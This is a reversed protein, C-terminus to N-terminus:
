IIHLYHKEIPCKMSILSWGAPQNIQLLRGAKPFLCFLCQQCQTSKKVGNSPRKVSESCEVWPICVVLHVIGWVGPHRSIQQIDNVWPGSHCPWANSNRTGPAMAVPLLYLCVEQHCLLRHFYLAILPYLWWEVESLGNQLAKSIM